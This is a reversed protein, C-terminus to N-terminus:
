VFSAEEGVVIRSGEYGDGQYDQAERERQIKKQKEQDEKKTLMELELDVGTLGSRQEPNNPRPGLRLGSRIPPPLPWNDDNRIEGGVNATRITSSGNAHSQTNTHLLTGPALTAPRRFLPKYTMLCATCIAISPELHSWFYTM